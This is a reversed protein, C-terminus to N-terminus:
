AAITQSEPQGTEEAATPTGAMARARRPLWFGAVFAVALLGITVLVTWEAAGTFSPRHGGAGGLVSFFIAGVGAVGLTMGLSNITQLVSSASGMEHPEVGAMVIDFLPVFVMGMGIGGVVMPALLDLSGVGTGAVRLVAYLGLLGAAEVVLGALLVRRGLKAMSMGGVASGVFAGFAWPATSIASHWPTFGLGSQLFVNFVLVIGGMSAVFVLAFAVGSLYGRHTFIGPMVLPSGDRRSRRVQYRAFCALVPVSGAIMAFGWLPWGLDHGQALPFVLLFMGTGALAMGPLDLRATRQSPAAPLLRAGAALAALGIPVNVLFIMRWSLAFVDLGILGGSVIPGLMASLGMVPGYVGFARGMEHAAFLDRILGFVQPIMLAAFAGQLVQAGILEGPNMAAACAASTVVFGAMGTLLVRRRGFLDGLRGGTLLGVAMALTYGATIWEIVAYSGGLDHRIAPAAVQCITADLLDMVAATIVVAFALWRQV